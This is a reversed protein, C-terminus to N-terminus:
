KPMQSITLSNQMFATIHTNTVSNFAQDISNGKYFSRKVISFVGEIPNFWPSYPPTYLLAWHRQKALDKVCLSHHFRVNDLLIVTQKPLDLQSMFDMFRVTNFSGTVKQQSILRSDSMAVLYSSTTVRAFQKQVVLRQGKPAYGRAPRGHRGFSTEDLSIFQRGEAIYQNRLELFQRTKEDLDKPKSFFRAKKKTIGQNLLVTRLLEKSVSLNIAEKVHDQLKCLSIFPDSQVVARIILSVQQAKSSVRTPYLRRTPNRLWRSVTMHSVNLLTATKRLSSVVSYIHAAMHRRDLPYM